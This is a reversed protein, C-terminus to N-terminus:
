EAVGWRGLILRFTKPSGLGAGDQSVQIDVVGRCLLREFHCRCGGRGGFHWGLLSEAGLDLQGLGLLGVTWDWLPDTETGSVGDAVVSLTAVPTLSANADLNSAEQM